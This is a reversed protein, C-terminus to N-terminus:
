KKISLAFEYLTNKGIGSVESVIRAATKTHLESLLLRLLKEHEISLQREVPPAAEIIMVIEGKQQNSDQSVWQHITELTDVRITEFHKTLERAFCIKRTDGFVHRMDALTEVIRHPAEYFILEGQLDNLKHLSAQRQGSKAPLFGVFTFQSAAFGSASLATIAACCGPIPTVKIGEQHAQEILTHGPDSILPTGADSILGLSKGDHLLSLIKETTKAENNEHYSLLPKNIALHKLLHQSHRTDEAAIFDVQRLIEIARQSIDALNGIPTAIVYLQGTPNM